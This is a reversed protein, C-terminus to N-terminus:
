QDTYFYDTVIGDEEKVGYIYETDKYIIIIRLEKKKEDVSFYIESDDNKEAKKLIKKLTKLNLEKLM